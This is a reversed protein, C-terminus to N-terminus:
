RRASDAAAKYRQLRETYEPNAGGGKEISLEQLEVADQLRGGLFMALAATDFEFSDMDKREELMRDALAVAFGDYRGLTPLMTMFYWCDNNIAIRGGLPEVYADLIAKSGEEDEACRRAVLYRTATLSRLPAGLATARALAQQALDRHVAPTSAQALIEAFELCHMAAPQVLKSTRAAHRGVERGKDALVLARLFALQVIPDRSAAATAPQLAAALETALGEARPDGRLALDAFVALPRSENALEAIAQKRVALAAEADALKTAAILYALGWALGDRPAHALMADVQPRADKGVVDDFGQTFYHRLEASARAKDPDFTGDLAAQIADVLGAGPGGQFLCRGGHDIVVVHMDEGSSVGWTRSTRQELDVVVSCPAWTDALRSEPDAVAVVVRMGRDAFRRQLEALYDADGDADPGSVEPGYPYFALVTCSPADAGGLVIPDGRRWPGWKPAPPPAGLTLQRSPAALAARQEPTLAEQAPLWAIVMAVFVATLFTRVIM